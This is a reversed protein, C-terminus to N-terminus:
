HLVYSWYMQLLTVDQVLGDIQGLGQGLCISQLYKTAM